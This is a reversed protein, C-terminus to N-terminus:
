KSSEWLLANTNEWKYIHSTDQRSTCQYQKTDIVERFLPHLKMANCSLIAVDRASSYNRDHHMGHAVAFNTVKSQLGLEKATENMKSYFAKLASWEKEKLMIRTMEQTRNIQKPMLKLIVDDNQEKDLENMTIIVADSQQQTMTKEEFQNRATTVKAPMSQNILKM